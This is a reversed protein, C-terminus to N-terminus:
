RAVCPEAEKAVESEYQRSLSFSSTDTHVFAVDLQYTTVANQAVQAFLETIGAQFLEDLAQGLTDDNFDSADLEKDILLDVPKNAMYEPMLYLALGTLGLGNRVMALTTQGCSVKRGTPTPLMEDITHVLFRDSFYKPRKFRHM